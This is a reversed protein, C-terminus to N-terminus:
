ASTRTTSSRYDPLEVTESSSALLAREGARRLLPTAALRHAGHLLALGWRSKPLALAPIGPRVRQTKDVYPRLRQEYATLAREPELSAGRSRARERELALEGALVHAALLALSTGMGTPGGWATDGLLVVRGRSWRPTRVQEARELYFEEPAGAFGDLVRQTQWGVDAFRERLVALQAEVGLRNLGMPPAMFALTARTTGVDDPRLSVIRGGPATLWRWWQDDDRSPQIRGYGVYQGRDTYTVEARRGDTFVLDRTASRKGEAVVLLDYHERSGRSTVVDVGGGPVDHEVHVLHEGYRHEVDGGTAGRLLESLRGRLIELEATPGDAARDAELRHTHDRVPFSAYTSGDPRLFRTGVEGTGAAAVAEYLGTRRLVERASGRVDVNQGAARPRPARELLTPAFGFRWLEHAVAPGAISGGTVLVRTQLDTGMAMTEEIVRDGLVKMM